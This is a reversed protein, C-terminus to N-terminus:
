KFRKSKIHNITLICGAPIVTYDVEDGSDEHLIIVGQKNKRHLIGYSKCISFLSEIDQEVETVKERTKTVIDKWIVEVFDLESLRRINNKRKGM